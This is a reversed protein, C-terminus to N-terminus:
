YVVLGFISCMEDESSPGYYIDEDTENVYTAELRLREGPELRIPADYRAILPHDWQRNEYIMVEGATRIHYVRFLRGHKHFHTTLMLLDQSSDITLTDHLTRESHAPLMFRHFSWLLPEAVRDVHDVTFVNVYAEAPLTDGGPNVAHVNIDLVDTPELRIGVGPPLSYSVDSEQTGFYFHRIRLFEDNNTGRDRVVSLPLPAGGQPIGYLTFHHSNDRMRVHFGTLYREASVPPPLAFFVERESRPRVPFAPLHLQFGRSPPVLPEFDGHGHADHLLSTDAVEGTRPAGAAIWQRIFEIAAPHLASSGLPMRAGHGVSLSGTLKMMLFSSEPSGPRVRLLGGGAAVSNVPAINVLADFARGADLPLSGTPTSGAHCGSIACGPALIEKELREFSSRTLIPTPETPESCAALLIALVWIALRLHVPTRM